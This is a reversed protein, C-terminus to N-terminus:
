TAIAVAWQQRKAFRLEELHAAEITADTAMRNTAKANDAAESGNNRKFGAAVWWISYGFILVALPIGIGIAALSLYDGLAFASVAKWGSGFDTHFALFHEVITDEAGEIRSLWVYAAWSILWLASTFLWLRLLGRKVNM